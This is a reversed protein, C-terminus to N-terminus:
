EMRLHGSKDNMVRGKLCNVCIGNVQHEGCVSRGCLKCTICPNCVKGCIYCRGAFEM